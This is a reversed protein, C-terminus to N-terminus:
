RRRPQKRRFTTADLRSEITQPRTQPEVSQHRDHETDVREEGRGALRFPGLVTVEVVQEGIAKESAVQANEEFRRLLEELGLIGIVLRVAAVPHEGEREIVAIVGEVPTRDGREKLCQHLANEPDVAVDAVLVRPEGERTEREARSREDYLSD